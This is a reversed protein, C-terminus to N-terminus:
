IDKSDSCLSMRRSSKKLKDKQKKIYEKIELPYEKVARKM